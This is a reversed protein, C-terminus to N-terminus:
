RQQNMQAFFADGAAKMEAPSLDKIRQALTWQNGFPDTVIGFRDGWFADTPAMAAQAGADVARQFRADVSEGYIWFRAPRAVIGMEPFEDSCYLTSDGMTFSAHFIKTGSPDPARSTEVAGFAKAYFALAESCNKLTLEPTVTHMGQPIASVKSM